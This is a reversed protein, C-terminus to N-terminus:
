PGPPGLVSKYQRKEERGGEGSDRGGRGGERGADREVEKRGERESDEWFGRPWCSPGSGWWCGDSGLAIEGLFFVPSASGLRKQKRKHKRLVFATVQDLSLRFEDLIFSAHLHMATHGGYFKIALIAVVSSAILLCWWWPQQSLGLSICHPGFDLGDGLVKFDKCPPWERFALALQLCGEDDIEQCWKFSTWKVSESCYESFDTDDILHQMHEWSLKVLETLNKFRRLVEPLSRVDRCNGVNLKKLKQPLALAESLSIRWGLFM